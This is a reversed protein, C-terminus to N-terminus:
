GNKKLSLIIVKEAHTKLLKNLKDKTPEKFFFEFDDKNLM